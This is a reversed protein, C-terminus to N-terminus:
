LDVRDLSEFHHNLFSEIEPLAHLHRLGWYHLGVVVVVRFRTISPQYRSLHSYQGCPRNFLVFGHSSPNSSDLVFKSASQSGDCSGTMNSLRHSSYIYASAGCGSSTACLVCCNYANAISAESLRISISNTSQANVIHRCLMLQYALKTSLPLSTTQSVTKYPAHSIKAIQWGVRAIERAMIYFHM